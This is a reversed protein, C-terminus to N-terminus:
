AVFDRRGNATAESGHIVGRLQQVLERLRRAEHSLEQSAAASEQAVAANSQVSQEIQGAAQNVLEVDASQQKSAAAIQAVLQGAATANKIVEALVAWTEASVAVGKDANQVTSEIMEASTRAAATSRQALARVEEAVVGFGKGAEGARAAEIAANLALLNTQSAIEDIVKIIKASEGSSSKIEQIAAHLRQMADQGQSMARETDSM